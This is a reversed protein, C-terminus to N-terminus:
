KEKKEQKRYFSLSSLSTERDERACAALLPVRLSLSLSLSSAGSAKGREIKKELSLGRLCSNKKRTAIAKKREKEISEKELM